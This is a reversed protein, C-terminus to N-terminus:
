KDYIYHYTTTYGARWKWRRIVQGDENKLYDSGIDSVFRQGPALIISVPGLVLNDRDGHSFEVDVRVLRKKKKFV